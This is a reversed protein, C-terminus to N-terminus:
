HLKPHEAKRHGGPKKAFYPSGKAPTRIGQRFLLADSASAAINQILHHRNAPECNRMVAQRRIEITLDSYVWLLGWGDALEDAEILYAPVALYLEDAVDASRVQEFRTGKMSAHELRNIERQVQHYRKNRTRDYQWVAYEEFLTNPDKLEPEEQRIQDELRTREEKCRNLSPMLSGSNTADGWCEERNAYCQILMTKAPTLIRAPGSDGPNKVSKSWFAAVDAKFKAIRTPVNLGAGRPPAEQYLWALIARQILRRRQTSNGAGHETKKSNPQRFRKQLSKKASSFLDM